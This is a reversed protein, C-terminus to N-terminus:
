QKSSLLQASHLGCKSGPQLAQAPVLEITILSSLRVSEHDFINQQEILTEYIQSDMRQDFLNQRSIQARSVLQRFRLTPLRQRCFAVKVTPVAVHPVVLGDLFFNMAFDLQRHIEGIHAAAREVDDLSSVLSMVWVIQLPCLDLFQRHRVADFECTRGACREQEVSRDHMSLANGQECRSLADKVNIMIRLDSKLFLSEIVVTIM